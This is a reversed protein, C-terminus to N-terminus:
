PESLGVNPETFELKSPYDQLQIQLGRDESKYDGTVPVLDYAIINGTEPETLTLHLDAATEASSSKANESLYPLEVQFAGDGEPSITALRFETIM